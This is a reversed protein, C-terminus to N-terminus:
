RVRFRRNLGASRNGAADVAVIRLRHRGPKLGRRVRRPAKISFTGAGLKRKWVRKGVTFTVRASEDLKLRIKPWRVKVKSVHPPTTDSPAPGSGPPTGTTTFTADPTATTGHENTAVLRFHYTTGPALGALAAGVATPAAAGAVTAAGAVSGYSADPGYEFRADAPIASTVSGSLTAATQTVDGASAQVEPAPAYEFAGMDPAPGLIRPLGSFDLPVTTLAASAVDITPSAGTVGYGGSVFIPDSALVHDSYDFQETGTGGSDGASRSIASYRATIVIGAGPDGTLAVADHGSPGGQVISNDVSVGATGSSLRQAVLGVGTTGTAVLTVHELHVSAATVLGGNGGIFVSDRIENNPATVYGGQRGGISLVDEVVDGGNVNVGGGAANDVSQDLFLHRFTVNGLSSLIACTCSTFPDEQVIRPREAGPQGQITSGSSIALDSGAGGGRHYDGPELQVTDGAGAKGVAAVLTCPTVQDCTTTNATLPTAYYTTGAWAPAALLLTALAALALSRPM